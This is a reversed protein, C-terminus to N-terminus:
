LVGLVDPIFEAGGDGVGFADAAFIGSGRFHAIDIMQVFPEAIGGRDFMDGLLNCARQTPIAKITYARGADISQFRALM